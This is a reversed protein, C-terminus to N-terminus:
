KKLNIKKMLRGVLEDQGQLFKAFDPGPQHKVTFGFQQAADTFTKDKAARAFAEELKALVERPTGKPAGVGRWVEFILPVQQETMTPVSPFAALRKESSVALLRVQGADLSGAIEAPLQVSAEIKGGLLSSVALGQGFPVHTM